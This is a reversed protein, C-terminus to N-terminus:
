VFPDRPVPRGDPLTAREGFPLRGAATLWLLEAYVARLQACHPSPAAPDGTLALVEGRCDGACWGRFPCARCRSYRDVRYRERIAAFVPSDALIDALDQELLSGAAHEPATHNPCPYVRGDADVLVVRRGIGCSPRGRGRGLLTAAISFWDRALLGALEPRRQLVAVLARMTALQDPLHGPEGCAGGIGRLPIFRVEQVGLGRAMDLYPELSAEDGRAYVRCLITYVGAERLRQVGATTAEWSGRGRILDHQRAMHHDLSVQVEVRRTALEAAIAPTVTTGNTSVVPRQGFLAATGDLLTLLRDPVLLPEGGLVVLSADPDLIGRAGRIGQVLREVPADDSHHGRNYCHACRLNCRNTLNLTLNAIAIPEEAPATAEDGMRLIGRALLDEVVPMAEAELADLPRRTAKAQRRLVRRLDAHGDFHDLFGLLEEDVVLWQALDGWVLLWSAGRQERLEPPVVRLVARRSLPPSM